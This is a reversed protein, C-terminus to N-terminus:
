FEPKFNPNVWINKVQGPELKIPELDFKELMAIFQPFSDAVKADGSDVEHNWFYVAGTAPDLYVLNGGASEALPIM